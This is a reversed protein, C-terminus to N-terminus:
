QSESRSPQGRQARLLALLSNWAMSVGLATCLGGWSGLTVVAVHVTLLAGVFGLM